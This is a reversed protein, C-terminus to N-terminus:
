DIENVNEWTEQLKLLTGGGDGAFPQQFAMGIPCVATRGANASFMLRNCSGLFRIEGGTVRKGCDGAAPDPPLCHTFVPPYAISCPKASGPLGHDQWVRGGGAVALADGLGGTSGAIRGGWVSFPGCM